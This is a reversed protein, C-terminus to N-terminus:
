NLCFRVSTAVALESIDRSQNDPNFLFIFPRECLNSRAFERHRIHLDYGHALSHVMMFLFFPSFFPPITLIESRKEDNM